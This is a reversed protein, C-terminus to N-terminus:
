IIVEELLDKPKGCDIIRGKAVKYITTCDKVTSLRHAIVILTKNGKIKKIQNVIEKETKVDLASTAEDMVLVERKHYFSRALAVRQREGGSFRVGGEGLITDVGQPLDKVLSSLQAKSISEDVRGDDISDDDIGLAINKRLSDDVIFIEQPIYAVKSKWENIKKNLDLGNYLLQGKDPDLVGLMMDVITTKGAGSSGILGISDGKKFSINIDQLSNVESNPYRYSVNVMEFAEFKDVKNKNLSELLNVKKDIPYKKADNYSISIGYRSFQLTTIGTSFVTASPLIRAIAVGFMGLSPMIVEPKNGSLIAGVVLLVIFVVLIIELLQRPAFAIIQERSRSESFIKSSKYVKDNFFKEINLTKIEKFGEMSETIGKIALSNQIPAISGAKKVTDAFLYNYVLLISLIIFLLVVPMIGLKFILLGFISIAAVGECIWKSLVIIVGVFQSTYGQTAQIYDASNREIHNVYPMHQYIEMLRVRLKVVQNNGYIFIKRNIFISFVGKLIFVIVIMLGFFMLSEDYNKSINKQILWDVMPNNDQRDSIVLAIYPGILGIGIVDIFSAVMFLLILVPLKKKQDGLLFIIEKIYQIARKM